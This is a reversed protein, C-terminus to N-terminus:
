PWRELMLEMGAPICDIKTLADFVAAREDKLDAYTSSVFAQYRKKEM